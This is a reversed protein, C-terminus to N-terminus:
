AITAEVCLRHTAPGCRGCLTIRPALMRRGAQRCAQEVAELATRNCGRAQMVYFHLRGSPRLAALAGPLLAAGGHPLVILIRDFRRDLEALVLAADGRHLIVPTLRRNCALNQRAFAHAVPNKEIGVVLGARSHRAINLVFPGIGSCLVAVAEGDEVQGAVRAREHALRVSFYVRELDLHFTLGNERHITTLRQEGAIVSLPLTRYEGTYVGSRRAVVRVKPYAGLIAAGIDAEREELEPALILVAIDGVCDFGGSLRQPALEPFRHELFRRLNM